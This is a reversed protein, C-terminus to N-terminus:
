HHKDVHIADPQHWTMGSVSQFGEAAALDDLDLTSLHMIWLNPDEILQQRIDFVKIYTKCSRCFSIRCDPIEDTVFYGLHDQRNELCKPCTMRPFEWRTECLWCKMQRIGEVEKVLAYHPLLGCTPCKNDTSFGEKVPERTECYKMHYIHASGLSVLLTVFDQTLLTKSEWFSTFDPIEDARIIKCNTYQVMRKAFDSIGALVTHNDMFVAEFVGGLYRHLQDISISGIDVDKMDSEDYNAQDPADQATQEYTVAEKLYLNILKSVAEYGPYNQECLLVTAESSGAGLPNM